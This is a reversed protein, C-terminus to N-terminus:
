LCPVYYTLKICLIGQCAPSISTNNLWLDTEMVLSLWTIRYRHVPIESIM